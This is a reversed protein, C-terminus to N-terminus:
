VETRVSPNNLSLDCARFVVNRRLDISCMNLRKRRSCDEIGKILLALKAVDKMEQKAMIKM